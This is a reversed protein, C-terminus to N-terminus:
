FDDKVVLVGITLQVAQGSATEIAFLEESRLRASPRLKVDTNM